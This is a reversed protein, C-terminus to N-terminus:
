QPFSYFSFDVSLNKHRVFNQFYFFRQRVQRARAFAHGGVARFDADAATFVGANRGVFFDTQADAIDFTAALQTSM